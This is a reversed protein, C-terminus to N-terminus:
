YFIVQKFSPFINFFINIPIATKRVTEYRSYETYESDEQKESHISANEDKLIEKVKIETNPTHKSSGIYKTDEEPLCKCSRCGIYKKNTNYTIQYVYHNM